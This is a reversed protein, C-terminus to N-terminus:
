LVAERWELLLQHLRYRYMLVIRTLKNLRPNSWRQKIKNAIESLIPKCPATSEVDAVSQQLIQQLVKPNELEKQIKGIISDALERQQRQKVQGEYRVWSDLVQKAELALATKQELEFAQAELKATEKM